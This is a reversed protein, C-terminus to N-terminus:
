WCQHRNDIGLRALLHEKAIIEGDLIDDPSARLWAKHLQTNLHTDGVALRELSEIAHNGGGQLLAALNVEQRRITALALNLKCAEQTQWNRLEVVVLRDIQHKCYGLHALHLRGLLDLCQLTGELESVSHVGGCHLHTFRTNHLALNCSSHLTNGLRLSETYRERADYRLVTLCQVVEVAVSHQFITSQEQHIATRLRELVVARVVGTGVRHRTLKRLLLPINVFNDQTSVVLCWLIHLRACHIHLLYM